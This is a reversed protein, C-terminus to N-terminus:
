QRREVRCLDALERAIARPPLGGYVFQVRYTLEKWFDARIIENELSEPDKGRSQVGDRYLAELADLLPYAFSGSVRRRQKPKLHINSTPILPM